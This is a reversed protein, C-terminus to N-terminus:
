AGAALGHNDLERAALNRTNNGHLVVRFKLAALELGFEDGIKGSAPFPPPQYPEGINRRRQKVGYDRDFIFVKKVMGAEIQRANELGGPHIHLRAALILAGGREAHLQRATEPQVGALVPLALEFFQHDGHVHLM